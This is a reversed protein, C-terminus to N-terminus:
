GAFESLTVMNQLCLTAPFMDLVESVSTCTTDLMNFIDLESRTHMM